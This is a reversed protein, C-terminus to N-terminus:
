VPGAALREWQFLTPNVPEDSIPVAWGGRDRTVRRTSSFIVLGDRQGFQPDFFGLSKPSPSHGFHAAIAEGRLRPSAQSGSTSVISREILRPETSSEIAWDM